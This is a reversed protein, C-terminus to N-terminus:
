PRSTHTPHAGAAARIWGLGITLRLLARAGLVIVVMRLAQFATVTPPDLALVKATIAMEAIGGPATAIFSSAFSLGAAWHVLGALAVGALLFAATLAAAAMLFQPSDRFMEPKFRQGLSWGILVQAGAVVIPPLRSEAIVAAVGIAVVLPGLVFPNPMRLRRALLGAATAMLGLWLMDEWPLYRAGDPIPLSGDFANTSGTLLSATLPVITVVLSVRVTHSLAVLDARAGMRSAQVAMDSAAGIAAAFFCTVGDLRTVRQLFVAGLMSMLCTALATLVMWGILGSLAGIVAPTFYLGLALGISIQGATLGGPPLRGARSTLSLSSVAFLSGLLWPLPTGISQFVLGGM